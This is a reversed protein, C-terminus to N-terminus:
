CEPDKDFIGFKAAPTPPPEAEVKDYATLRAVDFWGYGGSKPRPSPSVHSGESSVSRAM